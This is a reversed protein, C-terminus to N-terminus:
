YVQRGLLLIQSVKDTPRFWRSTTPFQSSSRYWRKARCHCPNRTVSIFPLLTIYIKTHWLFNRRAHRFGKGSVSRTNATLWARQWQQRAAANLVWWHQELPCQNLFLHIFLTKVSSKAKKFFDTNKRLQLHAAYAGPFTLHQLRMM